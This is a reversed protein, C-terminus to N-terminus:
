YSSHSLAKKLCCVKEAAETLRLQPGQPTEADEFDLESISTLQGEYYRCVTSSIKLCTM